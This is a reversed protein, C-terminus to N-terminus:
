IWENININHLLPDVEGAILTSKSELEQLRPSNLSNGNSDCLIRVTGREIDEIDGDVILGIENSVLRVLSGVPYNGLISSLAQVYEPNLQTGAVQQLRRLAVGPSNPHRYARLTTLADYTDAVGAIDVYPCSGPSIDIHPYGSRDYQLHHGLIIDLIEPGIDDMQTAIQAGLEPHRKIEEFEQPSLPGPKKIIRSSIRLKGLDHMLAGVGITQTEHYSLNCARAIAIALVSVNVSHCYTYDDYDKIMTLALFAYPARTLERTINEAASFLKEGSPIQNNEVLACTEGVTQIVDSYVKRAQQDGRKEEKSDLIRIADIGHHRLTKEFDAKEFAGRHVLEMFTFAHEKQIFPQIEFGEVNLTRLLTIMGAAVSNSPSCLQENIFLTDDLIGIKIHQQLQVLAQLANWYREAMTQCSPHQAPYLRLSRYYASFSHLFDQIPDTM